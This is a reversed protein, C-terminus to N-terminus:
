GKAHNRREKEAEIEAQHWTVWNGKITGWSIPQHEIRENVQEAVWESRVGNRETWKPWYAAAWEIMQAKRQKRTSDTRRAGGKHECNQCFTGHYIPTEKRPARVRVFYAGCGDCKFLRQPCSSELFKLFEFIAFDRARALTDELDPEPFPWALPVPLWLHTATELRGDSGSEIPPPNRQLFKRLTIDIREQYTDSAWFVNRSWPQEGLQDRGSAIWQDSLRRLTDLFETVAADRTERSPNCFGQVHMSPRDYPIGAAQGLSNRPLKGNLTNALVKPYDPEGRKTGRGLIRV